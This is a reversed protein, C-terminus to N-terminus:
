PENNKDEEDLFVIQLYKRSQPLGFRDLKKIAQEYSRYAIEIPEINKPLKVVWLIM